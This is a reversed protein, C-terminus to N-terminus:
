IVGSGFCYWLVQGVLYIIFGALMYGVTRRDERRSWSYDGSRWPIIIGLTFIAGGVLFQYLLATL